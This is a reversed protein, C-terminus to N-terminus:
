NRLIAGGEVKIWITLPHKWLQNIENRESSGLGGGLSCLKLGQWGQEWLAPGNGEAAM